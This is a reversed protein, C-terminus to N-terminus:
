KKIFLVAGEFGRLRLFYSGPKLSKPLHIKRLHKGRCLQKKYLIGKYRGTIDRIEVVALTPKNLIIEINITDRAPQPFTQYIGTPMLQTTNKSAMNSNFGYKGQAEGYRRTFEQYFQQAITKSKIILINEDNNEFGSASWNSSGSVVTANLFLPDVLFYKHHLLGNTQDPLAVSDSFVPAPPDWPYEASSEGRMDLSKSWYVDWFTRDFVGQVKFGNITDWKAKKALCLTDSSYAYICFDIEKTADEVERVMMLDVSDSPCFYLYVKQSDITFEHPTNDEKRTHFKSNTSDPEDTNSGWMEEFETTYARGLAQDQIIILNNADKYTNQETPNWSGTIVYDDVDSTSDRVDILWIKNHMRYSKPNGGFSDDIVPINAQELRMIEQDDRHEDDIIVRVRVGRSHAALIRDTIDPLALRYLCLDLTYKASDIKSSVIQPFDALGHAYNGYFGITDVKANFYVEIKQAYTINVYFVLVFFIYRMSGGNLNM